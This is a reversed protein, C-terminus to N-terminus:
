SNLDVRQDDFLDGRQFAEELADALQILRDPLPGATLTDFMCKLEHGLRQQPPLAMTSWDRAPSPGGVDLFAKM